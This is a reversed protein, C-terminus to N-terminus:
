VKKRTMKSKKGKRSKTMKSKKGRRSKIIKSKKGKRSKSMRSKKGGERQKAFMQTLIKVVENVTDPNVAAAAAAQPPPPPPNQPSALLAATDPHEDEPLPIQPQREYFMDLIYQKTLNIAKETNYVRVYKEFIERVYDQSVSKHHYRILTQNVERSIKQIPTETKQKSASLAALIEPYDEEAAAAATQPRRLSEQIVRQLQEDNDDNYDADAM